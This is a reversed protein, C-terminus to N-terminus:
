APAIREREREAWRAIRRGIGPDDVGYSWMEGLDRAHELMAEAQERSVRYRFQSGKGVRRREPEPWGEERPVATAMPDFCEHFVAGPVRLEIV